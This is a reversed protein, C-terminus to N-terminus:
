KLLEGTGKWVAESECADFGNWWTCMEVSTHLVLGGILRKRIAEAGRELHHEGCGENGADDSETQCQGGGTKVILVLDLPAFVRAESIALQLM